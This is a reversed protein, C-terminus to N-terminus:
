ANVLGNVMDFHGHNKYERVGPKPHLQELGAAQLQEETDTGKKKRTHTVLKKTKKSQTCSV